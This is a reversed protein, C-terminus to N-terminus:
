VGGTARLAGNWIADGKEQNLIISGLKKNEGTNDFNVTPYVTYFNTLNTYEDFDGIFQNSVTYKTIIYFYKVDTKYKESYQKRYFKMKGKEVFIPEVIFNQTTKDFVGVNKMNKNILLIISPKNKEIMMVDFQPLIMGIKIARIGNPIGIEKLRTELYNYIDKKRKNKLYDIIELPKSPNISLFRNKFDNINVQAIYMRIEKDQLIKFAYLHKILRGSEIYEKRQETNLNLFDNINSPDNDFSIKNLEIEKREKITEGFYPFLHEKGNLQPHYRVITDWNVINDSNNNTKVLNYLGPQNKLSQICNIFYDPNNKRNLKNLVFYNARGQLRYSNYLNSGYNFEGNTICWYSGHESKYLKDFYLHQLLGLAIAENKSEVRFVRITEEDVIRGDPKEWQKVANRFYNLKFQDIQEKTDLFSYNNTQEHQIQTGIRDMLYEIQEWSYQTIDKLKQINDAPFDPFRFKLAVIEPLNIYGEETGDEKYPRLGNKRQNFINIMTDMVDDNIYPNQEHWKNKLIQIPNLPKEKKQKTDNPLQVSFDDNTNNDIPTNDGNEDDEPTEDDEPNEVDNPDQDDMDYQGIPQEQIYKFFIKDLNM